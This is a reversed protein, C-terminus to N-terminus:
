CYASIGTRSLECIKQTSHIVTVVLDRAQVRFSPDRDRRVFDFYPSAEIPNNLIINIQNLVRRVAPKPATYGLSVGLKLNTIQTDLVKDFRRWRTLADQRYADTGVPQKAAVMALDNHWGAAPNVDWLEERCIRSAQQAELTEKLLLYTTYQPTGQLDKDNLAKLASVFQDEQQWWRQYREISADMFRDRAVDTKGFFVGLEPKYDFLSTEYADAIDSFKQSMTKKETMLRTASFVQVCSLLMFGTFLATLLKRQLYM